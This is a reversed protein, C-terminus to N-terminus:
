KKERFTDHCAKCANGLNAATARTAALNGSAAAAAIEHAAGALGLARQRFVPAQQWIVPLAETKVGLQQGTGAPFWSPIQRALAEIRTANSEVNPLNPQAQGFEDRIAKASKGIEKYHAVRVDVVKQVASPDTGAAISQSYTAGGFIVVSALIVAKRM